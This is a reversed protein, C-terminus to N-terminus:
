QGRGQNLTVTGSIYDSGDSRIIVGILHFFGSTLLRFGSFLFYEDFNEKIWLEDGMVSLQNTHIVGGYKEKGIYRKKAGKCSLDKRKIMPRQSSDKNKEM